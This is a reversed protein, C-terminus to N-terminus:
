YKLEVHNFGNEVQRPNPKAPAKEAKPAAPAPEEWITYQLKQRLETLARNRNLTMALKERSKLVRQRSKNISAQQTAFRKIEKKMVQDQRPDMLSELREIEESTKSLSNTTRSRQNRAVDLSSKVQRMTKINRLAESKM